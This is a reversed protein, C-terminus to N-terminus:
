IEFAIKDDYKKGKSPKFVGKRHNHQQAQSVHLKLVSVVLLAGLCRLKKSSFFDM